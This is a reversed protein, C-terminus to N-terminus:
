GTLGKVPLRIERKKLKSHSDVVILQGDLHCVLKDLAEQVTNAEQTGSRLVGQRDRIQVGEIGAVFTRRIPIYRITISRNLSDALELITM